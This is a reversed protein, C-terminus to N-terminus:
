LRQRVAEYILIASAVAANMSEAKGPMPIRVLYDSRASLEQSMGNAENGIIIACGDKLNLEYPSLKGKLHAGFSVVKNEKLLPLLEGLDVGKYVPLHFFSGMAARLVKPNYIDVCGKSLFIGDAGAADATRIITGMNGPDTVEELIVYLPKDPIAAKNFESLRMKCVAIIGQSNVTSSLQAFLSDKFCYQEDAEPVNGEYSESTVIYKIHERSPIEGILREGELVYLQQKDREKKMNLAKLQKYIRNQNSTIVEKIM